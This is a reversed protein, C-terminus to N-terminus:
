EHRGESPSEREANSAPGLALKPVFRACNPVVRTIDVAVVRPAGPFLDEDPGLVQARGEIRLRAGDAFDILLIGVNPNVLINGLSMFAGNGDYDPFSLRRGGSLRLVGRGGGKFSCDCHGRKDSTALFFFEFSEVRARHEAPIEDWILREIRARDWSGERGWTSQARLEGPHFVTEPRGHAEMGNKDIRVPAGHIFM